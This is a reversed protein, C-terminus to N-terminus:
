VPSASVARAHHPDPQLRNILVGALPAFFVSLQGSIYIWSYIDVLLDPDTDEM